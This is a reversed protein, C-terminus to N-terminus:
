ADAKREPEYRDFRARPVGAQRRVNSVYNKLEGTREAVVQDPLGARLALLVRERRDRPQLVTGIAATLLDEITTGRDDAVTALLGWVRPHLQVSNM